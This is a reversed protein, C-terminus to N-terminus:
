MMYVYTRRASTDGLVHWKHADNTVHSVQQQRFIHFTLLSLLLEYMYM